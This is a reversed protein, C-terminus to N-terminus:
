AAGPVAPRNQARIDVRHRESFMEICNALFRRAIWTLGQPIPVFARHFPIWAFNREFGRSSLGQGSMPGGPIPQEVFYSYFSTKNASFGPCRPRILASKRRIETFEPTEAHIECPYGGSKTKNGCWGRKRFCYSAFISRNEDPGGPRPMPARNHDPDATYPGPSAGSGPRRDLGRRPTPDPDATYPGASADSGPRRDNGRRCRCNTRTRKELCKRAVADTASSSHSTCVATPPHRVDIPMSPSGGPM